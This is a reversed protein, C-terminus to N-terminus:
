PGGGKRALAAAVQFEAKESEQILHALKQILQIRQIETITPVGNPNALLEARLEATVKSLLQSAQTLQKRRLQSQLREQDLLASQAKPDQEFQAYPDPGGGPPPPLPRTGQAENNSPNLPTSNQAACSAACVCILASAWWGCARLVKM